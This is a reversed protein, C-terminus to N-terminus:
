YLDFNRSMLLSININKSVFDVVSILRIGKRYKVTDNNSDRRSTSYSGFSARIRTYTSASASTTPVPAPAARIPNNGDTNENPGSDTCHREIDVEVAM